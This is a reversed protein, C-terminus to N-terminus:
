QQTKEQRAKFWAEAEAEGLKAQEETMGSVLQELAPRIAEQPYGSNLAILYWKVAKAPSAKIEGRGEGFIVALEHMSALSGGEAAKSLLGLGKNADKKVGRGDIHALGLAGM